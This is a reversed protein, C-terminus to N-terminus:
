WDYKFSIAGYEVIAEYFEKVKEKDGYEANWEAVDELEDSDSDLDFAFSWFDEDFDEILNITMHRDYHDRDDLWKRIKYNSDPIYSRCENALVIALVKSELSGTASKTKIEAKILEIESQRQALLKVLDELKLYEIVEENLVEM